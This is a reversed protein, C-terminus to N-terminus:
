TASEDAACGCLSRTPALSIQTAFVGRHKLPTKRSSRNMNHPYRLPFAILGRCHLVARFLPRRSNITSSRKSLSTKLKIVGLEM